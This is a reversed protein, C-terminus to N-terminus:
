SFNFIWKLSICLVAHHHVVALHVTQLLWTMSGCDGECLEGVVVVRYDEFTDM